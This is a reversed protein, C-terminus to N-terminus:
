ADWLGEERLSEVITEAQAILKLADVKNVRTMPFVYDPALIEVHQPRKYSAIGQCYEMIEQSSLQVDAKPKVFVMIGEDILRHKMGVTEAQAVKPHLAVFASVEDPFVNFGKQKIMFKRRGGLVVSRYGSIEKFYGMDGTYLVGDTSIIKATEQPQNYYGPFVIRGEYCIEGMEGDELIKGATGDPNMPKRITVPAIDDFARGVQGVMDEISIGPASFLSFGANETMGFGTGFYPAMQSFRELFPLDVASGAYVVFKLSSLDYDDYNPLMWEMRFQTPIQALVTAKHKEIAALTSAPDFIRLLIDTGGIYFTTMLAETVCGVHSPPLNVMLILEEASLMSLGRKLIENQALINDHTLVAPKPEGTTGTTYIILAPTSPEISAYTEQLRATLDTNLSLAALADPSLFDSMYVAGNILEDGDLLSFQIFHKVSPCDKQVALGVQRFDRVPTNGLFVFAAPEIKNLDRVVEHDQLRVDVPAIIAGVKFCAYMLLIHEPSLLLMTSVRDGKKIGMDLLKLAILDVQSAFQAYTVTKGDEFQIMAARDPQEAAWKEVYHNLLELNSNGQM